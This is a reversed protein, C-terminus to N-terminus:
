SSSAHALGDPCDTIEAHQHTKGGVAHVAIEDNIKKKLVSSACRNRRPSKFLHWRNRYLQGDKILNIHSLAQQSRDAFKIIWALIQLDLYQIIRGILRAFDGCNTRRFKALATKINLQDVPNIANAEFCSREFVSQGGGASFKNANEVGVEQRRRM